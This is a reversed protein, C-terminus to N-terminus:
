LVIATPILTRRTCPAMVGPHRTSILKLVARLTARDTRTDVSGAWDLHILALSTISPLKGSSTLTSTPRALVHGTKQSASTSVLTLASRNSLACRRIALAGSGWVRSLERGSDKSCRLRAFVMALMRGFNLQLRVFSTLWQDM